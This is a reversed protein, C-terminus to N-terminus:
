QRARSPLGLLATNGPGSTQAGAFPRPWLFVCGWRATAFSEGGASRATLMAESATGFSSNSRATLPTVDAAETGEQTFGASGSAGAIASAVSSDLRWRSTTGPIKLDSPNAPCLEARVIPCTPGKNAAM